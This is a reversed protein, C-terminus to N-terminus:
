VAERGAVVAVGVAVGEVDAVGAAVGEVGVAVGEVDAAVGADVGAAVDAAAFADASKSFLQRLHSFSPKTGPVARLGFFTETPAPPAFAEPTVPSGDAGEVPLEDAGRALPPAPSKSITKRVSGVM